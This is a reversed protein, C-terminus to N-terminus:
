ESRLTLYGSFIILLGGFISNVGPFENLFIMSFIIAIVPELYGLVAAKNAAIEKLGRFYLVPAITSHVVAMLLFIWIVNLPLEKVFPATLAAIVVNSFFVMVLPQFKQAYIRSLIVIIAYAFGSLMGAMIGAMHSEELSFGKLMIWLGASAIVIAIAIKKTTKEGLFVTDLFAVLVPAIYHTLVANSITTHKFSYFYTCTNVLSIVGLILLYWAKRIDPMEKRYKKQTLIIGQIIAATFSSYFIIVHVEVGALRVVIGLSSWLFIALLIYLSAM